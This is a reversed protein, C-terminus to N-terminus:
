GGDGIVKMIWMMYHSKLSVAMIVEPEGGYYTTHSGVFDVRYEANQLLNWLDHRYSIEGPKGQTISDGLPLIFCPSQCLPDTTAAGVTSAVSGSTQSGFACVYLLFSTIVIQTLRVKYPTM